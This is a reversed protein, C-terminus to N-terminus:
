SVARLGLPHVETGRWVSSIFACEACKVAPPEVPSSFRQAKQLNYHIASIKDSRYNITSDPAFCFPGEEPSQAEPIHRDSLRQVFLCRTQGIKTGVKLMNM